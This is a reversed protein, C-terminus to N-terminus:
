RKPPAIRQKTVSGGPLGGAKLRDREKQMEAAQDQMESMNYAGSLVIAVIVAIVGSIWPSWGLLLPGTILVVIDLGRFLNFMLSPPMAGFGTQLMPTAYDASKATVWRIAGLVGAAGTLVAYVFSRTLSMYHTGDPLGVGWFAPTAAVAWVVGLVVPVTALARRVQANSFPLMRALGKTRTLVRMSGFLPVFGVVLILAAAFSSFARFGLATVAYPVVVSVVVLLLRKPYRWLRQLERWVLAGTGSSGGRAPRVHGKRLSDREVLIDRMLGIDLAFAAGQMGAVLSGGSVLRARHINGLRLLALAGVVILVVGGALGVWLVSAGSPVVTIRLGFWDAAVSVILGLVVIAALGFLWQLTAIFWSRGYTQEFGALATLGAAGIGMALGWEVISTLNYGTMAALLGGLVVGVLLVVILVGVFRKWLLRGRRIPADMLWFGEAASAVVPGFMRAAMATLCFAAATAVWPLLTRGVTCSDSNCAAAARQAQWVAGGLMAVILVLAFVTVYGDALVQRLTKTARGRRWDRILGTLDREDVALPAVDVLSHDWAPLDPAAAMEGLDDTSGTSVTSSTSVTPDTPATPEAPVAAEAEADAPEIADALDTVDASGAPEVLAPGAAAPGGPPKLKYGQPPRKKSM